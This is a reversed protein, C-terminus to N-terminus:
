GRALGQALRYYAQEWQLERRFRQSTAATDIHALEVGALVQYHSVFLAPLHCRM